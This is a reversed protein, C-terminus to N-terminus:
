VSSEEKKLPTEGASSADRNSLIGPVEMAANSALLDQMQREYHQQMALMKKRFIETSASKNYTSTRNAATLQVKMGEIEEEHEVKIRQLKEQAAELQDEM